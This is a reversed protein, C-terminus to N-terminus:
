TCNLLYVCVCVCVCVCVILAKIFRRFPFVYGGCKVANDDPSSAEIVLIMNYKM